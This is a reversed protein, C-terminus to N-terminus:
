NSSSRIYQDHRLGLQNLEKTASLLEDIFIEVQRNIQETQLDGSLKLIEPEISLSDMVEDIMSQLIERYNDRMTQIREKSASDRIATALKTNIRGFMKGKEIIKLRQKASTIGSKDMALGLAFVNFKEPQYFDHAQLRKDRLYRLRAVGFAVKDILAARKEPRLNRRDRQQGM